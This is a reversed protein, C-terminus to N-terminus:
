FTIIMEFLYFILFLVIFYLFSYAMVSTVVTYNAGIIIDCEIKITYYYNASSYQIILFSVM